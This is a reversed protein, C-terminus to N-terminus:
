YSISSEVLLANSIWIRNLVVTDTTDLVLAAEYFKISKEYEGNDKLSDGFEILKLKSSGSINELGILLTDEYIISDGTNTNEEGIPFGIVYQDEIIEDNNDIGIFIIPILAVLWILSRRFRASFYHRERYKWIFPEALWIELSSFERGSYKSSKFFDFNFFTAVIVGAIMISYAIGRNELDLGLIICLGFSVAVVILNTYFYNLGAAVDENTIVSEKEEREERRKRQDETENHPFIYPLDTNSEADVYEEDAINSDSIKSEQEIQLNREKAINIAANVADPNYEQKHSIIDLIREDPKNELEKLFNNYDNTYEDSISM